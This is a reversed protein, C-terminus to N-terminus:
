LAGLVAYRAEVDAQASSTNTIAIWYTLYDGSTKQVRVSWTLQPGATNVNTPVVNWEVHWLVPWNYTFWTTTSGAPVSGRFQVGCFPFAMRGMLPFPNDTTLGSSRGTPYFRQLLNKFPTFADAQKTLHQYTQQLTAGAAAVIEPWTFDEQYRLYNLFLVACGTSVANRDTPDTVNVYDPRGPADLWIGATTYGDLQAPYTDAALVRSLGEGNSAGCNWGAGQAASFVEVAEAILLFRTYDIDLIPVTKADLYLDVASCGYHYAGGYGRGSPDLPAIVINFPLAPPAIGGFYWQMTGFDRECTALIGDAVAAGAPLAPDYYVNFHPTSGRLTVPYDFGVGARMPLAAIRARVVDEMGPKTFISMSELDRTVTQMMSADINPPLQRTTM